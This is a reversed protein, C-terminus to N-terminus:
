GVFGRISLSKVVYRLTSVIKAMKLKFINTILRINDYTSTWSASIHTHIVKTNTNIDHMNVCVRM